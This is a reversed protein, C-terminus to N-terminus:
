ARRARAVQLREVGLGVELAEGALRQRGAEAMDGGAPLDRRVRQEAGPPGEAGAAPAAQRDGVEERVEGLAGVLQRHDARALGVADVM